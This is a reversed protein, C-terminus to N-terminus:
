EYTAEPRPDYQRWVATHLGSDKGIGAVGGIMVGHLGKFSKEAFRFYSVAMETGPLDEADSTGFRSMTDQFRHPRDDDCANAM